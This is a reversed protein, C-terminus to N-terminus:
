ENPKVQMKRLYEQISNKSFRVRRKNIRIPFLLGKKIISQLTNYCIGLHYLVEKTDILEDTKQWELSHSQNTGISVELELYKNELTSYKTKLEEVEQHMREFALKIIKLDM